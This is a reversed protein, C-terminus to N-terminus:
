RAGPRHRHHPVLNPAAADARHVGRSIGDGSRIVHESRCGDKVIKQEHYVDDIFLNLAEIRQRLGREIRDWEVRKVIRPVIDFPFIKERGSQDGYVNFTIGSHCRREAVQQRRRLDGDDLSEIMRVLPEAERRVAGDTEFMEDFFGATNYSNFNMSFRASPCENKRRTQESSQVSRKTVVERVISQPRRMTTLYLRGLFAEGMVGIVLLQTGSFVLLVSM